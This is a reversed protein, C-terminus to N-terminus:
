KLTIINNVRASITADIQNVIGNKVAIPVIDKNLSFADIFLFPNFLPM